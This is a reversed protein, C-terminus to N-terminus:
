GFIFVLDTATLGTVKDATSAFILDPGSGATITDASSDSYVTQNPGSNLLFYNGNKRSASFLSSATNDTLNAIRAALSDSSTWEAMIAALAVEDSDYSTSGAILIDQGGNSVLRDNGHGIILSRGAGGVLTNGSGDGILVNNGSGGKLRCNGRGYLWISLTITSDVQVDAGYGAYAVLRGTPLFTGNPLNNINLQVEGPNTGAVFKISDGSANDQVFLERKTADLTDAELTIIQGSLYAITLLKSGASYPGKVGTQVNVTGGAPVVNVGRQVSGSNATVFVNNPVWFVTGGGLGDLSHDILDEIQFNDVLTNGGLQFTDGVPMVNNPGTLRILKGSGNVNITNNGPDSYSTGLDVQGGTIAIAAQNNNTTETVTSNRMTFQGGQVVIASANGSETFAMGGRILVNGAVTLAATGTGTLTRTGCAGDDGDLILRLGAPVSVSLPNYSGPDVDILVEITPGSTSVSLNSVAPGVAAMQSASAVHIVVRPTGAPPTTRLATVAAQLDGAFTAAGAEIVRDHPLYRIVAFNSHTQDPNSYTNGAVVLRGASDFAAGIANNSHDSGGSTLTTTVTGELGFDVDPCGNTKFLAVAFDSGGYSAFAQGVVAIRGAADIAMQSAQAGSYGAGFNTVTSEGGTGFGQDLSGDAANLRAVALASEFYNNGASGAVVIRGSPDIGVGAASNNNGGFSITTKGGSGFRNDLSGDSNLRTVAFRSGYIGNTYRSATGAVVVHGSADLAMSAATDSEYSYPDGTDYSVTTEGGSGFSTDLSGDGNLRAVVFRSGVGGFTYPSATGALVIHGAADVAVSSASSDNEYAGGTSFQPLVARGGQGFTTDPSGDPNLRLVAFHDNPYYYDFYYSPTNGAVLIRGSGDVSVASPNVFLSTDYAFVANGGQGFNADLSGDSNYRTLALRPASYPSGPGYSTGVVIIKGDPQTITMNSAYDNSASPMAATVRGGSGWSADLSGNSDLRTVAIGPPFNNTYITGAVVIRGNSDLAVGAAFSGGSGSGYSVLTKGGSGFTSDLSGDGNLRTVVFSDDGYIGSTGATGAVIVHGSADVAVGAGIAYDPLGGTAYPVTTQGGSGFSNDLIGNATLRAVAFRGIATGALVIHGSTDLVMSSVTDNESSSGTSFNPLFAKGGSGFNSDLTGDDNLRAVAFHDYNDLYGSTGAVIIHGSSDCAVSSAYDQQDYGHGFGVTTEGGSGFTGDLSGDGNLRAVGFRTGFNGDSFVGNARGALVIHGSADLAVSSAAAYYDAPLFNNPLLAKGGSGFGSDFSGDSNLRVVAFESGNDTFTSGAVLIHGSSDLAVGGPTNNYLYGYAPSNGFHFTVGGGSGFSSDLSGDTNYRVVAIRNDNYSNSTSGVVVVKGDTQTVVVARAAIPTPGGINTNVIGGTGFTPDLQGASPVCRDELLELCPRVNRSSRPGCAPPAQQPGSGRSRKRLWSMLKM